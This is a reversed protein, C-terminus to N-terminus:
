YTQVCKVEEIRNITIGAAISVILHKSDVSKSVEQLVSQVINPKVALVILESKSVVEINNEAVNAGM